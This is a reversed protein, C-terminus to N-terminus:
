AWSGRTCLIAKTCLISRPLNKAYLSLEYRSVSLTVNANLMGYSPNSFNLNTLSGLAVTNTFRQYSGNSQGTWSYNVLAALRVADTIPRRYALELDFTERPIDILNAGVPVTVPNISSTVTASEANASASAVLQDTIKLDAELEGGYIRANGV